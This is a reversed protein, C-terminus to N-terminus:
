PCKRAICQSVCAANGGCSRRCRGHCAARKAQNARRARKNADRMREAREAAEVRRQMDRQDRKTKEAAKRASKEHKDARALQVCVPHTKNRRCSYAHELKTRAARHVPPPLDETLCGYNNCPHNAEMASAAIREAVKTFPESWIKKMMAADVGEIELDSYRAASPGSQNVQVRLLLQPKLAVDVASGSLDSREGIKERLERRSQEADLSKSWVLKARAGSSVVGNNVDLWAYGSRRLNEDLYIIGLSTLVRPRCTRACAFKRGDQGCPVLDRAFIQALEHARDGSAVRCELTVEGSLTEGDVKVATAAIAELQRGGYQKLLAAISAQLWKRKGRWAVPYRQAPVLTARRTSGEDARWEYDVHAHAQFRLTGQVEAHVWDVAQTELFALADRATTTGPGDESEYLGEDRNVSLAAVMVEGSENLPWSLTFGGRKLELREVVASTAEDARCAEKFFTFRSPAPGVEFSEDGSGRASSGIAVALAVAAVGMAVHGPVLAVTRSVDSGAYPNLAADASSETHSVADYYLFGGFAAAGVAMGYYLWSGTASEREYTVRQEFLQAKVRPCLLPETQVRLVDGHEKLELALGEDLRVRGANAVTPLSVPARVEDGREAQERELREWRTAVWVPLRPDARHGPDAGSTHRELDPTQQHVWLTAVSQPLAVYVAEADRAPDALPATSHARMNLHSPTCGTALATFLAIWWRGRPAPLSGM